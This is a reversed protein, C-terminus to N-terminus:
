DKCNKCIHKVARDPDQKSRDILTYGNSYKIKIRKDNHDMSVLFDNHYKTGMRRHEKYEGFNIEQKCKKCFKFNHKKASM